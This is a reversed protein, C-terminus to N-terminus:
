LITRRVYSISKIFLRHNQLKPSSAGMWYFCKSNQDGKQFYSHCVWARDYFIVGALKIAFPQQNRALTSNFQGILHQQRLSYNRICCEIYPSIIYPRYQQILLFSHVYTRTFIQMICTFLLITRYLYELRKKCGDTEQIYCVYM